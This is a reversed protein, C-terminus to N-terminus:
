QGASAMNLLWISTNLVTAFAVWLLYPILLFAAATSHKRFSLATVAIAVLLLMIDVLALDPRHLGFFLVSWTLNLGLQLAFWSLAKRAKTFGDRRWVLWAAIAMMLYLATWVPGFVWDPPNWAPRELTQYWDGVSSSTAAGGLAAVAFCIAVFAILGLIQTRRSQM